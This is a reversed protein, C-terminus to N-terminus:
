RGDKFELHRKIDDVMLYQAISKPHVGDKTLEDGDFRYLAEMLMGDLAVYELHHQYVISRISQINYDLLERWNLRQLPYMMLFPELILLRSTIELLQTILTRYAAKFRRKEEPISRDEKHNMYYWVDNVGILLIIVDPQVANIQPMIDIVDEVKYGRKGFNYYQRQSHHATELANVLKSVYGLGLTKPDKLDRGWETISDGVFAVTDYETLEM